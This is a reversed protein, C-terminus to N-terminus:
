VVHGDLGHRLPVTLSQHRVLPLHVPKCRGAFECRYSFRAILCRVVFFVLLFPQLLVHRVRKLSLNGICGRPCSQLVTLHFPREVQGVALLNGAHNRKSVGVVRLLLHHMHKCVKEQYFHKLCRYGSDHFLMMVLMIEVKSLTSVCHYIRETRPKLTYKAMMADFIAFIMLRVLNFFM